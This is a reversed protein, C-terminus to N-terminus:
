ALTVDKVCVCVCVCVCARACVCMCVCVAVELLQLLEFVQLYCQLDREKGAHNAICMTEIITHSM